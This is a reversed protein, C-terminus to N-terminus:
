DGSKRSKVALAVGVSLAAIPVLWGLKRPSFGVERRVASRVDELREEFERRSREVRDKKARSM